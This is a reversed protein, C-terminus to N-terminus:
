NGGVRPAWITFIHRCHLLGRARDRPPSSGRSSSIALWELMRAQLIGHVSSDPLAVTWPTAFLRVCSLVTWCLSDSEETLFRCLDENLRYLMDYYCVVRSSGKGGWHFGDIGPSSADYKSAIFLTKCWIESSEHSKLTMLGRNCLSIMKYKKVQKKKFIKIHM